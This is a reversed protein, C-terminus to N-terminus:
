FSFAFDVDEEVPAAVVPTSKIGTNGVQKFTSGTGLPRLTKGFSSSDEFDNSLYDNSSVPARSVQTSPLVIAQTDFSLLSASRDSTSASSTRRAMPPSSTRSSPQSLQSLATAWLDDFPEQPRAVTPSPTSQMAPPTVSPSVHQSRENVVYAPPLPPLTRTGYGSGTGFASGTADPRRVTTVVPTAQSQYASSANGGATDASAVYPPPPPLGPQLSVGVRPQPSSRRHDTEYGPQQAPIPARPRTQARSQYYLATRSLGLVYNTYRTMEPDSIQRKNNYIEGMVPLMESCLFIADCCECRLYQIACEVFIFQLHSCYTRDAHMRDAFLSWTPGNTLMTLYVKPWMM